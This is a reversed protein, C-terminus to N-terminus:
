VIGDHETLGDVKGTPKSCFICSGDKLPLKVCGLSDKLSVALASIPASRMWVVTLMITLDLAYTKHGKLDWLCQGPASHDLPIQMITKHAASYTSTVLWLCAM